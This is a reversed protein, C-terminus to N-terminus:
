SKLLADPEPGASGGGEPLDLPPLEDLSRLGFTQLFLATTAYLVPRGPGEARGVEEILGKSVLSRIVGDSNVGRIADVQPRTIPQRYAIIALTELAARSLPTNTELGLLREILPAAEPVTTLQWRGRHEQLRVGRGQLAEALERLAAEVTETPQELAQALQRVTLPEPAAFLLAEIQASLPLDSM